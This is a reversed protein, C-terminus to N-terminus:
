PKRRPFLRRSPNACGAVFPSDLGMAVVVFFGADFAGAFRAEAFRGALEDDVDDVFFADRRVVTFLVAAAL